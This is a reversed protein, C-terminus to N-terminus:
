YAGVIFRVFADKEKAIVPEDGVLKFFWTEGQHPVGVAIMRAPKGARTGKIDILYSEKKGGVGLMEIAQNAEAAALPTLGLQARWRNVNPIMGGTAGPFRSITIEAQGAEGSVTFARQIMPGPTKETWNEPVKFNPEAADAPLKEANSSVPKEASPAPPTNAAVQAQSHAGEHFELSKIFGLFEDKQDGVVASDGVMKVFWVFGGRSALAGIIRNLGKPGPTEATMDVLIGKADGLQAEQSATKLQDADLPKLGLESRWMNVSDLQIGSKDPLPIVAVEAMKGDAGSVKYSAVRMGEAQVEQWGAPIESHVHPVAPRDAAQGHSAPLAPPQNDEKAVRYTQIESNGCGAFLSAWVVAAACAASRQIKLSRSAHDNNMEQSKM